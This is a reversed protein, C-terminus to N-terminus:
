QEYNNCHEYNNGKSQILNKLSLTPIDTNFSKYFVCANEICTFGESFSHKGKSKTRTIHCTSLQRM